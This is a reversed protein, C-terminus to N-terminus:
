VDCRSSFQESALIEPATYIPTGLGSLKEKKEMAFEDLFRAFGFDAIKAEGDHVLINSPKIDRHIVKKSYLCKFGKIIDLCFKWVDMELLKGGKQKLVEKLSGENCYEMVIYVNHSTVFTSYLEVLNSAKLKSLIDIERFYLKSKANFADLPMVKIAVELNKNDALWGKYVQGYSGEGLLTSSIIYKDIQKKAKPPMKQPSLSIM